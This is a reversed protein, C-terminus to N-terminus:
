HQTFQLSLNGNVDQFLIYNRVTLNKNRKNDRHITFYIERDKSYGPNAMRRIEAFSPTIKVDPVNKFRELLRIAAETFNIEDFGVYVGDFRQQQYVALGIAEANKINLLKKTISVARKCVSAQQKNM